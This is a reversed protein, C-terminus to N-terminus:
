FHTETNEEKAQRERSYHIYLKEFSLDEGISTAVPTTFSTICVCNVFVYKSRKCREILFLLKNLSLGVGLVRAFM